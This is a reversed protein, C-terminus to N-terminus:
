AAYILLRSASARSPGSRTRAGLNQGVLVATGTAFAFGPMLLIYEVRYAIGFASVAAAGYARLHGHRSPLLPGCETRSRPPSRSVLSAAVLSLDFSLNEPLSCSVKEGSCSGQWSSSDWRAPWCGHRLASGAGWRRPQVLGFILVPNLVINVLIVGVMVYMPTRADGHVPLLRDPALSPGAVRHGAPLHLPLPGQM